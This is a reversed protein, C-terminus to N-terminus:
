QLYRNKRTFSSNVLNYNYEVIFLYNFFVYMYMYMDYYLLVYYMIIYICM